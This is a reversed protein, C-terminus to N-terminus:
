SRRCTARHRSRLTTKGERPPATALFHASAPHITNMGRAHWPWLTQWGDLIESEISRSPTHMRGRTSSLDTSPSEASDLPLTFGGEIWTIGEPVTGVLDIEHTAEYADADARLTTHVTAGFADEIRFRWVLHMTRGDNTDVEQVDHPKLASGDALRLGFQNEWLTNHAPDANLPFETCYVFKGYHPRPSELNRLSWLRIEGTAQIGQFVLGPGPRPEVFDAQAAPVAQAPATWFDHGPGFALCLFVQSNWYSSSPTIYRDMSGESAVPTLNARLVGRQDLADNSLWYHLNMGLMTRSLGAPLVSRGIYHAAVLGQLWAWRYATSRAFLVNRGAADILLPLDHMRQEFRAMARDLMVNPWDPLMARLYCHHLGFVWFNYYSLDAYKWDFLWGDGAHVEDGPILDRRLADEDADFGHDRLAIRAALNVATFLSWNSYHDTYRTCSELWAQLQAIDSKSLSPLLWDRSLWLSWAVFSSEMQRWNWKLPGFGWFHPHQPNTGALLASRIVARLDVRQGLNDTLGPNAPQAAYAALAPMMRTLGDCPIGSPTDANGRRPGPTNWVALDPSSERLVDFWGRFYRAFTSLFWTRDFRTPDLTTATESWPASTSM